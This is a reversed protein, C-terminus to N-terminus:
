HTMRAAGANSHNRNFMYKLYLTGKDTLPCLLNVSTACLMFSMNWFM